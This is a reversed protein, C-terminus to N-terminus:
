PARLDAQGPAHVEPVIRREVPRVDDAVVATAVESALAIPVERDFVISKRAVEAARAYTTTSLPISVVPRRTARVRSALSYAIPTLTAIGGLAAVDAINFVIANYAIFDVVGPGMVLSITNGLAAGIILGLAVPALKHVASLPRSVFAALAIVLSMSAINILRTNEGLSMGGATGHNETLFFSFGLASPTAAAPSTALLVTALEKSVLDILVVALAIGAMVPLQRRHGNM